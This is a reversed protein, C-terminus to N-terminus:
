PHKAVQDVKQATTVEVSVRLVVSTEVVMQTNIGPQHENQGDCKHSKRSLKESQNYPLKTKKCRALM